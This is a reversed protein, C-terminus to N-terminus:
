KRRNVRNQNIRDIAAITSEKKPKGREDKLNKSKTQTSIGYHSKLRERNKLFLALYQCGM